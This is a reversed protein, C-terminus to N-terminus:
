YGDYRLLGHYFGFWLFGQDDQVIRNVIGLGPAKDPSIHTFPIDGGNLVPVRVSRVQPSHANCIALWCGAALILRVTDHDFRRTLCRVPRRSTSCGSRSEDIRRPADGM